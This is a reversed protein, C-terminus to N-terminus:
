LHCISELGFSKFSSLSSWPWGLCCLQRLIFCFISSLSLTLDTSFCRDLMCLVRPWPGLVAGLLFHCIIYLIVWIQFYYCCCLFSCHIGPAVPILSPDNFFSFTIPIYYTPGLFRAHMHGDYCICQPLVNVLLTIFVFLSFPFFGPYPSNLPLYM